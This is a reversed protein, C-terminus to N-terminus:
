VAPTWYLHSGTGLNDYTPSALPDQGDSVVTLTGAGVSGGIALYGYQGLLDVGTVLPIGQALANGSTDSIDLFYGVPDRWLITLVYSVTGLAIQFTQNGAQLPIEFM